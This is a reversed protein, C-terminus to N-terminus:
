GATQLMQLRKLEHVVEELQNRLEPALPMSPVANARGLVQRRRRGGRTTPTM